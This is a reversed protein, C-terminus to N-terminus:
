RHNTRISQANPQTHTHTHTNTHKRLPHSPLKPQLSQHHINPQIYLLTHAHRQPIVSQCKLLPLTPPEASTHTQTLSHSHITLDPLQSQPQHHNHKILHNLPHKPTYTLTQKPPSSFPYQIQSQTNFGHHSSRTSSAFISKSFKQLQRPKFRPGRSHSVRIM